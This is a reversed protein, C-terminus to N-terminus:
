FNFSDLVVSVILFFNGIPFNSFYRQSSKNKGL